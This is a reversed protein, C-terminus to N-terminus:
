SKVPRLSFDAKTRSASLANISRSLARRNARKPPLSALKSTAGRRRGSDVHDQDVGGDPDIVQAGSVAGESTEKLVFSDQRMGEHDTLKGDAIQTLTTQNQARQLTQRLGNDGRIWFNQKENLLLVEESETDAIDVGM